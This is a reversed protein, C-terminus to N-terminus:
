NRLHCKKLSGRPNPTKNEEDDWSIADDIVHKKLDRLPTAENANVTLAMERSHKLLGLYAVFRCLTPFIETRALHPVFDLSDIDDGTM